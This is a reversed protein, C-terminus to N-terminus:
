FEVCPMLAHKRYDLTNLNIIRPNANSIKISHVHRQLWMKAVSYDKKM